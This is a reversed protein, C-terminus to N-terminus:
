WSFWNYWYLMQYIDSQKPPRRTHLYVDLQNNVRITGLYV